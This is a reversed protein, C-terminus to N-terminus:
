IYIKMKKHKKIDARTLIEWDDVLGLGYVDEIIYFM